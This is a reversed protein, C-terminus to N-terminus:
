LKWSGGVRLPDPGAQRCAPSGGSPDARGAGSGAARVRGWRERRRRRRHHKQLWLGCVARQAPPLAAAPLQRVSRLSCGRAPGSGCAPGEECGRRLVFWRRWCSWASGAGGAGRGGQASQCSDGRGTQGIPANGNAEFGWDRGLKAM